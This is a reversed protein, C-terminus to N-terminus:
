TLIETTIFHKWVPGFYRRMMYQFDASSLPGEIGLVEYVMRAERLRCHLEKFGSKQYFQKRKIREKLNPASEDIQEIALFLKQGDYRKKLARLVASGYGKGRCGDSIALYFLYSLDGHSIVYAFGTWVATEGSCEEKRATQRAYVAWFDVGEMGRRKMMIGFPVREALPFATKYLRRIQRYEPLRRSM